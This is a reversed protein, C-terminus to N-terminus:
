MLSLITRYCEYAAEVDAECYRIIDEKKLPSNSYYIEKAEKGEMEDKPSAVGLALCMLELSSSLPRGFQWLEQTDVHTIEWPKKGMVNLMAPVTIGNIQMRKCIFSIDFGKINHGGLKWSQFSPHNIVESFQQLITHEDGYYSRVKFGEVTEPRPSQVEVTQYRGVAICVIKSFEPFLPSREWYWEWDSVEAPKDKSYRRCRVDYLDPHNNKAEEESARLPVTEIDIRIIHTDLTM